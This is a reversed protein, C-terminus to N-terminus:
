ARAELMALAEQATEVGVQGWAEELEKHEPEELFHRLALALAPEERLIAAVVAPQRTLFAPTYTAHHREIAAILDLVVDSYNFVCNPHSM